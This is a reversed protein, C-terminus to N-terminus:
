GPDVQEAPTADGIDGGFEDIWAFQLGKVLKRADRPSMGHESFLGDQEWRDPELSVAYPNVSAKRDIEVGELLRSAKEWVMVVFAECAELDRHSKALLAEDDLEDDLEDSIQLMWPFLTM